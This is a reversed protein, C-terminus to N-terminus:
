EAVQLSIICVGPVAVAPAVPDQFCVRGSDYGCNVYAVVQSDFGANKLATQAAELFLFRIDPVLVATENKDVALEWPKVDWTTIPWPTPLPEAPPNPPVLGTLWFHRYANLWGQRETEGECGILDTDTLYGQFQYQVRALNWGILESM